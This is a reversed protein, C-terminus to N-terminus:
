SQPLGGGIPKLVMLKRPIDAKLDLGPTGIGVVAQWIGPVMDKTDAPTLKFTVVLGGSSSLNSGTGLHRKIVRGTSVGDVTPPDLVLIAPVTSFDFVQGVSSLTFSYEAGVVLARLMSDFVPM